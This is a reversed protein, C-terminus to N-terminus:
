PAIRFALNFFTKTGLGNSRYLGTYGNGGGFDPFNLTGRLNPVLTIRRYLPLEVGLTFGAVFVNGSAESEELEGGYVSFEAGSVRFRSVGVDWGGVLRSASGLSDRRVRGVMVGHSVYEIRRGTSPRNADGLTFRDGAYGLQWEHRAGSRVGVRVDRGRGAVAYTDYTEAANGLPSLGTGSGIWVSIGSGTRRAASDAPEQAAGPRASLLLALALFPTLRRLPRIRM